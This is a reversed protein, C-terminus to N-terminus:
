DDSVELVTRDAPLIEERGDTEVVLVPVGEPIGHERREDQTPMRSSVRAGAAIHVTSVDEQGRVYTGVKAETVVLGEVRLVGLARRVTDRGVGYTEMITGEAPLMQGPKHEGRQIADRLIDALQRYVARDATPDITMLSVTLLYRAM